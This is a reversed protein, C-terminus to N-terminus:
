ITASQTSHKWPLGVGVELQRKDQQLRKIIARGEVVGEVVEKERRKERGEGEKLMERCEGLMAELEVHEPTPNHTPFVILTHQLSILVIICVIM